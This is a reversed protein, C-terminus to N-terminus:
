LHAHRGSERLKGEKRQPSGPASPLVPEQSCLLRSFLDWGNQLQLRVSLTEERPTRHTSPM